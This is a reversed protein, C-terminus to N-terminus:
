FHKKKSPLPPQWANRLSETKSLTLELNTQISSCALKGELPSETLGYNEGRIAFSRHRLRHCHAVMVSQTAFPHPM